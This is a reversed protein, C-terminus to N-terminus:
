FWQSRGLLLAMFVALPMKERLKTITRSFVMKCSGESKGLAEAIEQYSLQEWIRMTLIDRQESSLEKFYKKVEAFLMRNHTDGLVDEESALDWADEIDISTPKKARYHDVVTNRAIRYLWASFPGKDAEYSAFHNYAKMFVQSVLDEATEKHHTKYYIFNYIPKIYHEYLAGFAAKDGKHAAAILTAEDHM